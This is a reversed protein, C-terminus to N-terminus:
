DYHNYRIGIDYRNHWTYSRGIILVIWMILTINCIILMILVIRCEIGKIYWTLIAQKTWYYRM